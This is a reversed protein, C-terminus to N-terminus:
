EARCVGNGSEPINECSEPEGKCDKHSCPEIHIIVDSNPLKEDIKKELMETISHSTQVTLNRCVTLHFDIIRHSGSRRTRLNHINWQGSGQTEIITEITNQEDLPLQADLIDGMAKRILRFAEFMIYCSACLSLLADLWPITFFFMLILGVALALNTYVDMAFHLSESELAPSNTERATKVLYRSIGFSVVISVALVIIGSGLNTPATGSILRRMSELFIWVGSGGIILSQVVAAITEFKGHGYAHKEDAPQDAHRIALFNVGSMLIDLMSDIASSLVAMSGTVIGIIFKSVALCVAATISLKAAFLKKASNDM